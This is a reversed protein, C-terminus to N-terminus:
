SPPEGGGCSFEDTSRIRFRFCLGRMSMGVIGVAVNEPNRDMIRLSGNSSWWSTISSCSVMLSSEPM